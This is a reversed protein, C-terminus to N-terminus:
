RLGVRLRTTSGGMSRERPKFRTLYLARSLMLGAHVGGGGIGALVRHYAVLPGRMKAVMVTDQWDVGRPGAAIHDSLSNGLLDM